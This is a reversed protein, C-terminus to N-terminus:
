FTLNVGFMFKKSPPTRSNDKPLTDPRSPPAVDPDQGSYQTWTFLNYGTAFIKLDKVRLKEPAAM